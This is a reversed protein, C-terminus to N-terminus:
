REKSKVFAKALDRGMNRQTQSPCMQLMRRLRGKVLYSPLFEMNCVLKMEKMEWISM